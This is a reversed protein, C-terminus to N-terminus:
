APRGAFRRVMLHVALAGLLLLAFGVGWAVWVAPVLWGALAGAFPIGAVAGDLAWRVMAQVAQLWAPDVWFQLWAPLPMAALDRGVQAANGSALAEALWHTATATIWAGGTWFVALLAFVIWNLAIM